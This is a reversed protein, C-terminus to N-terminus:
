ELFNEEWIYLIIGVSNPPDVSAWNFCSRGWIQAVQSKNFSLKKAEIMGIFSIHKDKLLKRIISVKGISGLGRVNWCSMIM